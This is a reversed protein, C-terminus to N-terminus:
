NTIVDTNLLQSVFEQFRFYNTRMAQKCPRWCLVPVYGYLLSCTCRVKVLLGSSEEQGKCASGGKLVTVIRIECLTSQFYLIKNPFTGAIVQINPIKKNQINPAKRFVVAVFLFCGYCDVSM